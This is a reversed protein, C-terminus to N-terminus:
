KKDFTIYCGVAHRWPAPVQKQATILALADALDNNSYIHRRRGPELYADNIRGRYLVSDANNTIVVEPTITAGLKKALLQRKDMTILFNTLKNKTKFAAATKYSSSKLPFVLNFSVKGAYSESIVALSKAMYICIPCEEAAFVYVNINKTQTFGTVCVFFFLISVLIKM